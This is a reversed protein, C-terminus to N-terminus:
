VSKDSDPRFWELSAYANHNHISEMSEAEVFFWTIRKDTKLKVAANRVIDEVFVPNQYAKETVYKEDERKLLPYVKSSASEEAIEILEEIWVFDEMRIQITVVARQNHAIGTTLEKSCPCVTSVPVKVGVQIDTDKSDRAVIVIRSTYEM